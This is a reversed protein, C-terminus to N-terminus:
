LVLSRALVSGGVLAAVEIVDRAILVPAARLRARRGGRRRPQVMMSVYPAAAAASLWPRHRGATVGVAVAGLLAAHRPGLFVRRWLFVDRLEPVRRVLLPFGAALLARRFLYGVDPEYVHHEVVATSSFRTVAGTRKVRWALDTDEAFAMNGVRPGLVKGLTANVDSSFPAPGMETLVGRRYAINATEYLGYEAPTWQTRSLPELPQTPDAVTRGQVVSIGSSFGAVLSELWTPRPRCDDDTFAVVEGACEVLARNRAGAALLNTENRLARIRWPPRRRQLEELTNDSSADDVVVVEMREHPYTQAELADLTRMLLQRRNFTPIVISVQPWEDLPRRQPAPVGHRVLSLYHEDLDAARCGAEFRLAVHCRGSAALAGRYSPDTLVRVVADALDAKDDVVPASSPLVDALADHRVSVCATGAAQARLLSSRREVISASGVDVLVAAASEDADAPAPRVDARQLLSALQATTDDKDADSGLVHVVPVDREPMSAVDPLPVGTGVVRVHDERVGAAVLAAAVSPAEALWLDPEHNKPSPVPAPGPSLVWRVGWHRALRHATEAAGLGHAHVLSARRSVRPLRRAADSENCRLAKTASTYAILDAHAGGTGIIHLVSPREM